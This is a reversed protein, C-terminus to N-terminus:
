NIKVLSGRVTLIGSSTLEASAAGDALFKAKGKLGVQLGEASLNAKATMDLNAGADITINAKAKLTLNSASEISIGSSSLTIKNDNADKVTVSKAKDDLVVSQKAPTQLTLIQDKDDFRLELKSRTLITKVNNEKDPTVPPKRKKSYLCGLIVPADPDQNTFGLVVEDDKEPYFLAGVQNSAYFGAMRAWLMKADDHLMPVSVQVRFNGEPDEAVAKVIGTQLGQIGPLLGSAPPATINPAEDAFWPASLGFAATTLWNNDSMSHHVGGIWASGNFRPGVGALELMCGPKALASGQFRVSGRIKSLKARLLEAASWAKPAGSPLLAGTQQPCKVNFVKALEASSLNGQETVSVSGPAAEDMSQTAYNWSYSKIADAALQTTSDLEAEFSLLSNDGYTVKLVAAASTDPTKVTVKGAAATVVFGNAEARTLMMDWDSAWYQVVSEYTATTAEVDKALGSNGILKGILDSDTTKEFLATSRQLTMKLVPDAIEVVLTPAGNRPIEIGQKIIVGQFISTTKGEYGFAIDVKKGPVFTASASAPFVPDSPDGDFIVLRARPVKNVASWTDISRVQLTDDIAKGDVKIVFCALSVDQDLPSPPM